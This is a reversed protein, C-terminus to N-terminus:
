CKCAMFICNQCPGTRWAALRHMNALSLLMRCTDLDWSVGMGPTRPHM